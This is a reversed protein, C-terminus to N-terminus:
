ALVGLALQIQQNAQARAYAEGQALIGGSVSRTLAGALDADSLSSNAASLGEQQSAISQGRQEFRSVTGGLDARAQTVTDFASDLSALATAAGGATTIELSAIGLTGGTVDVNDLAITDGAQTGVQFNRTDTNDLLSDGNFRTQEAIQTIDDRIQKFEVNIAERGKDGIAGNGAQAALERLRTLGDSIRALGGDAVQAVSAGQSANTAAQSLVAQDGKLVTSIALLAAGDSARSLKSGSAVERLAQDQSRQNTLINASGGISSIGAM